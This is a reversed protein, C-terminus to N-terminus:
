GAGRQPLTDTRGVSYAGDADVTFAPHRGIATELEGPAIRYGALSRALDPLTLPLVRRALRRAALQEVTPPGYPEIVMIASRASDYSVFAKAAKSLLPKAAQGLRRTQDRVRARDLHGGRWGAYAVVGLVGLVAMTPLPHDRTLRFASGGAECLVRVAMELLVAARHLDPEYGADHLLQYAAPLWTDALTDTFGFRNFVSDASIIVAPALFEALAATGADDADGRLRRPLTPDERMLPRVRPHLYDRIALDVVPVRPMIQGWLVKEAKVMPLGDHKGAVDALHDELEGPVHASVFTNSRGTGALGVFLDEARGRHAANCARAALANTDTVCVLAPAPVAMPHRTPAARIM